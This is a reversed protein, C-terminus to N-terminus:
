AHGVEVEVSTSAFSRREFVCQNQMLGLVLAAPNCHLARRLGAYSTTLRPNVELVVPGEVTLILDVGVYGWLGPIAAAIQGALGALQDNSDHVENVRVGDFHFRGDAVRVRQRNCALIQCRGDRCLLSLSLADGPLYPQLVYGPHYNNSWWALADARCVLHTDVCGAGDDPKIVLTEIQAPVAAIDGYTPVAIIGAARLHECTARKSTCLQVAAPACGLLTRGSDFALNTLTALVGRSEPAIPWVADAWQCGRRFLAEPTEGERLPLAVVPEPVAQLRSIM